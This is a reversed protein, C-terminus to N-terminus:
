RTMTKYIGERERHLHRNGLLRDLAKLPARVREAGPWSRALDILTLRSGHIMAEIARLLVRSRLAYMSGLAGRLCKQLVETARMTHDGRAEYGTLFSRM